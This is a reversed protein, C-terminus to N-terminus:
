MYERGKETKVKYSRGLVGATRSVISSTWKNQAADLQIYVTNNPNLNPFDKATKEHYANYQKHLEIMLQQNHQRGASHPM